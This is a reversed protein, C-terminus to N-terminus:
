VKVSRDKPFPHSKAWEEDEFFLNLAKELDWDNDTLYYRAEQKACKAAAVFRCIIIEERGSKPLTGELESSEPLRTPNPIDLHKREFISDGILNNARKIDQAKVGYKLALGSLTDTLMVTHRVVNGGESEKKQTEEEKSIGHFQQFVRMEKSTHLQSQSEKQNDDDDDLQVLLSPDYAPASKSFEQKSQRGAGKIAAATTFRNIIKNTEEDRVHCANKCGIAEKSTARCCTWRQLNSMPMMIPRVTEPTKFRGSHYFCAKENNEEESFYMCCNKCRQQHLKADPKEELTAGQMLREINPLDLKAPPASSASSSSPRLTNFFDADEDYSIPKPPAEKQSSPFLHEYSPLVSPASNVSYTFQQHTPVTHNPVPMTPYQTVPYVPYVGTPYPAGYYYPTPYGVSPWAM